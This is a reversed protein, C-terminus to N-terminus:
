FIIILYKLYINKNTGIFSYVGKIPFNFNNFYIQKIIKKEFYLYLHQIYIDEKLFIDTLLLKFYLITIRKQKQFIIQM